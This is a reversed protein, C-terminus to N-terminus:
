RFTSLCNVKSFDVDTENNKIYVREMTDKYLFTESNMQRFAVFLLIWLFFSYIVIERIVVWMQIEKLRKTKAIELEEQNPPKYGIKRPRTVGYALFHFLLASLM